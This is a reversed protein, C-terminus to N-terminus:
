ASVIAWYTAILETLRPGNGTLKESRELDPKMLELLKTIAETQAPRQQLQKIQEDKEAIEKALNNVIRETEAECTSCYEALNHM